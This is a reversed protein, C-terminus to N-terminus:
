YHPPIEDRLSGPAAAPAPAQRKLEVLERALQEILLQQRYVAQNLQDLLDDAYGAKIELETVRRALDPESDM